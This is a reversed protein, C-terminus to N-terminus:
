KTHAEAIQGGGTMELFQDELTKRHPQVAFLQIEQLLNNLLRQFKSKKRMSLLGM